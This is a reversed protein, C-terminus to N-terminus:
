EVQRKWRAQLLGVPMGRAMKTRETYQRAFLMWLKGLQHKNSIRLEARYLFLISLLEDDNYAYFRGDVSFGRQM